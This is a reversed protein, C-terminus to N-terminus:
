TLEVKYPIQNVIELTISQSLKKSTPKVNPNFFLNPSARAFLLKEKVSDSM